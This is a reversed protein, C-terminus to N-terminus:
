NTFLLKELKETASQQMDPLVHTYTNLTLTIDSHGLRESVVKPHEGAALLLTACSHRLDYLRFGKLRARELIKHFNRKTLNGYRIPQGEDSAFCLDNNEYLGGLKLLQEAQKIKHQELKMVLSKPIPLTRESTKTKLEEFYWGGGKPFILARQVTVTGKKFDVDSWKLALYEEPRMGTILAFELIIGRKDSEAAKLFRKAQEPSFAKMERKKKKPPTVRESPNSGLFQLEVAKKLANKLITHVYQVTRPAYTESLKNFHKQIELTKLDHLKRKGLAEFVYRRLHYEYSNFTTQRVRIKVITELWEKLYAEVTFTNKEVLQCNNAETLKKNLVKQADTKNGKVVESYYRRKGTKEDRGLFIRVLWTSDNKKVIQGAKRAKAM